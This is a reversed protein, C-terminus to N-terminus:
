TISLLVGLTLTQLNAQFIFPIGISLRGVVLSKKRVPQPQEGGKYVQRESRAFTRLMLFICSWLYVASTMGTFPISLSLHHSAEKNRHHSHSVSRSISKKRVWNEYSCITFTLLYSKELQHPEKNFNHLWVQSRPSAYSQTNWESIDLYMHLFYSKSYYHKSPAM